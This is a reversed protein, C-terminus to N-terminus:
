FYYNIRVLKDNGKLLRHVEVKGLQSNLERRKNLLRMFQAIQIENLDVGVIIEQFKISKKLNKSAKKIKNALDNLNAKSDVSELRVRIPFPGSIKNTSNLVFRDIGICECIKRDEINFGIEKLIEKAKKEDDIKKQEETKEKSYSVGFLIITREVKEETIVSSQNNKLSKVKPWMKRKEYFEMWENWNKKFFDKSDRTFRENETAEIVKIREELMEIKSCIDKYMTDETSLAM